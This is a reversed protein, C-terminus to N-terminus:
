RELRGLEQSRQCRRLYFGLRKGFVAAGTGDSWCSVGGCWLVVLGCFSGGCPCCFVCIVTVYMVCVHVSALYRRTNYM